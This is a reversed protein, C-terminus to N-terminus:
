HNLDATKLPKEARRKKLLKKKSVTWLYNVPGSLVNFTLGILLLYKPKFLLGGIIVALALASKIDIPRNVFYNIFNRYRISSVMLLSIIAVMIAMYVAVMLDYNPAPHFIVLAAIFVAASPVTLGQYYRKDPM